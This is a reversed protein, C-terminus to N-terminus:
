ARDGPRVALALSLAARLAAEDFPAALLECDDLAVVPVRDGYRQTLDLDTDVDLSNLAFGLVPALRQLQVRAQECHPCDRRDYLTIRPQSSSM